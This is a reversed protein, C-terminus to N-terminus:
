DHFVSMNWILMLFVVVSSYQAVNKMFLLWSAAIVDFLDSEFM